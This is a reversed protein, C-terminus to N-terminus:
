HVFYICACWCVCVCVCMNIGITEKGLKNPTNFMSNFLPLFLKQWPILKAKCCHTQIHLLNVGTIYLFAFDCPFHKSFMNVGLLIIKLKNHCRSLM